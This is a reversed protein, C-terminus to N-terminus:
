QVTRLWEYVVWGVKALSTSSCQRPTDAETHWAPYQFDIIDITPIKAVNRLPVHDDIVQDGVRPIFEDVGLRKATEWISVAVPRTDRWVYSQREYYLSLTQDGVMDLLVGWRYKHGPPKAAYQRAFWTSGLCYPDRGQQYVLEEGDFLVFDVGFKSDLNPMLHALEMLVATGSAGDNAGLFVGKERAIPNPDQDPLPRTDYHAALLIREERDPHWQVIINAMDVTGGLPNKARFEQLSVQGGLKKFHEVLLEQQKQMGSSGSYRPGLDCLEELYRFARVGDFPNAPTAESVATGVEQAWISAPIAALMALLTLQLTRRM